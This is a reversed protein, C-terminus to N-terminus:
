AQGELLTCFEKIKNNKSYFFVRDDMEFEIDKIGNFMVVKNNKRSIFLLEIGYKENLELDSFKKGLLEASKVEVKIISSNDNVEMTDKAIGWMARFAAEKGGNVDSKILNKVGLRLMAEHHDDNISKAVINKIGWGCLITAILISAGVDTDMAIVVNEFENVNYKELEEKQTADTSVSSFVINAVRNVRNPNIDIALVNRNFNVLTKAASVGFTGLGIICFDRDM